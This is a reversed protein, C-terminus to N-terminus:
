GGILGNAIQVDSRNPAVVIGGQVKHGSLDMQVQNAAIIFQSTINAPLSFGGPQIAAQLGYFRQENDRDVLALSGNMYRIEYNGPHTIEIRDELIGVDDAHVYPMLMLLACIYLLARMRKM